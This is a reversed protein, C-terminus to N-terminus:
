LLASRGFCCVRLICISLMGMHIDPRGDPERAHSIFVSRLPPCRSCNHRDHTKFERTCPRASLMDATTVSSLVLSATMMSGALGDSYARKEKIRALMKNILSVSDQGLQLFRDIAADLELVYDVSM